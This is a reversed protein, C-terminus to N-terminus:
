PSVPGPGPPVRSPPGRRPPPSGPQQQQIPGRGFPLGASGAGMLSNPAFPGGRVWTQTPDGTNEGSGTEDGVVEGGPNIANPGGGIFVMGVEFAPPNFDPEWRLAVYRAKVVAAPKVKVQGIGKADEAVAVPATKELTAPDFTRRGRWDETEPLEEFAFVEFRVPRQSHISGFEKLVRIQGLDYIVTRYKEDSEPFSFSGYRVLADSDTEPKPHAYIIRGGGLASAMNTVQGSLNDDGMTKGLIQFAGIESKKTLNFIVKMYRAQAKSFLVALMDDSPSFVTQGMEAWTKNDASGALSIKGEGGRNYFTVRDLISPHGLDLVAEALGVPVSAFEDGRDSVLAEAQGVNRSSTLETGQISGTNLELPRASSPSLRVWSAQCATAMISFSALTTLLTNM